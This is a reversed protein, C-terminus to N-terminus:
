GYIEGYKNVEEFKMNLYGTFEPHRQRFACYYRYASSDEGQNICFEYLSKKRFQAPQNCWRGVTIYMGRYPPPAEQWKEYRMVYPLCRYRMLFRIREFTSKLDQLWFEQGWRGSRDYGCLVYFKLEKKSLTVTEYLLELKNRIIEKDAIDDFAFLVNGDLRGRFLKEMQRKQLIRIDLGQRFQFPKGTELVSELLPEWAHCAFFNDDLFCIKKKSQDMFESIPSAPLSKESNKNVCFACGRFCGRTLFGISYDTFFKYANHKEGGEMRKEAFGRYLDYDPMHHEIEAPLAPARDYFFGTGGYFVNEKQLVEDPTYTDTFVKSIYVRDVEAIKKFDMLLETQWGKEKYFGSIKMSALNPFRQGTRYLLDADIIGLKM